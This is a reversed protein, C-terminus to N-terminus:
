GETAFGFRGGLRDFGKAVVNNTYDMEHRATWDAPAAGTDRNMEAIHGYVADAVADLDPTRTMDNERNTM